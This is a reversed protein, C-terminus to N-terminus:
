AACSTGATKESFILTKLLIQGGPKATPCTDNILTNSTYFRIGTKNCIVTPKLPHTKM